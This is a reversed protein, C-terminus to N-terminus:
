DLGNLRLKRTTSEKSDILEEIPRLEVPDCHNKRRLLFTNEHSFCNITVENHSTMWIQSGNRFKQRLIRIFHEIEPLALYNDPEDWFVFHSGYMHQAALVAACLFMCKEGESLLDFRPEFVAGNGAFRVKIMRADGVPKNTFEELDPMLEKLFNFITVYSAPHSSLLATLYDAFKECSHTLPESNGDQSESWGAILQPVPALIHMRRLWNRLSLLINDKTENILPLAVSHWDLNFEIQAQTTTRHYTVQAEQRTFVTNGDVSCNEEFVRLERFKDPLDLVLGYKFTRGELLAELEFKMREKTRELTIDDKTVLSGVRSTGIGLQQFIFLAKGLTSKGTGNKGILLLSDNGGPKIEFNQLCRFNHIYLRQLLLCGGTYIKVHPRRDIRSQRDFKAQGGPFSFASGM